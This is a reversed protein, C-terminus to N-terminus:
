IIPKISRRVAEPFGPLCRRLFRPLGPQPYATVLQRLFFATESPSRHALAYLINQLAPNAQGSTRGAIEGVVSFVAPLNEFNPDKILVLLTQLGAAQLSTSSHTVLDKALELLRQPAEKRLRNLGDTL